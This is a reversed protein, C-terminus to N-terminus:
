SGLRKYVDKVCKPCINTRMPEANNFSKECSHCVSVPGCGSMKKLIEVRKADKDDRSM